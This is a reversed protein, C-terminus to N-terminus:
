NPCIVVVTPVPTGNDIVEAVRTEDLGNHSVVEIYGDQTRRLFVEVIPKTPDRSEKLRM